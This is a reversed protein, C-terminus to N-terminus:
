YVASITKYDYGVLGNEDYIGVRVSLEYERGKIAPSYSYEAGFDDGTASDNWTDAIVLNGAANEERLVYLVSISTTALPGSVTCTMWVEGDIFEMDLGITTAYMRTNNGSNREDTIPMAVVILLNSVVMLVTLVLVMIKKTKSM